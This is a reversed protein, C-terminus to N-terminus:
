KSTELYVVLSKCAAQCFYKKRKDERGSACRLVNQLITFFSNSAKHWKNQQRSSELFLANSRPLFAFSKKCLM